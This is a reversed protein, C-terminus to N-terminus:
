KQKKYYTGDAYVNHGFGCDADSGEQKVSLMGPKIFTLTITCQGYESSSYVATDGKISAIGSLEGTNAQLEGNVEYPYVLNFSINIKGGGLARVTLTNSLDNHPAPFKMIFTGNVEEKSVSDRHTETFGLASYVILLSFLTTKIIWNNMVYTM